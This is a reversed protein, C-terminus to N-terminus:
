NSFTDHRARPRIPTERLSTVPIADLDPRSDHFELFRCLAHDQSSPLALLCRYWTSCNITCVSDMARLICALGPPRPADMPRPNLTAPRDIFRKYTRYIAPRTGGALANDILMRDQFRRLCFTSTDVIELTCESDALFDRLSSLMQRSCTSSVPGPEDLLAFGIGVTVQAWQM